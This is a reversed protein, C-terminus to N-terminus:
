AEAAAEILNSEAPYQSAFKAMVDQLERTQDADLALLADLRSPITSPFEDLLKNLASFLETWAAIQDFLQPLETPFREALWAM